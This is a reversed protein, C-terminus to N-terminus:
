QFLLSTDISSELSGDLMDLSDFVMIENHNKKLATIAHGNFNAALPGNELAEYFRKRESAINRFRVETSSLKHSDLLRNHSKIFDKKLRNMQEFFAALSSRPIKNSTIGDLVMSARLDTLSNTLSIIASYDRDNLSSRKVIPLQTTRNMLDINQNPLGAQEDMVQLKIHNRLKLPDKSIRGAKIDAKLKEIKEFNM